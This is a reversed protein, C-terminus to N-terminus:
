RNDAPCGMMGNHLHFVFPIQEIVVAGQRFADVVLAAHFVGLQFVVFVARDLTDIRIRIRLLSASLNASYIPNCSYRPILYCLILCSAAGPPSSKTTPLIRTSRIHAFFQICQAAHTHKAHPSTLRTRSYPICNSKRWKSNSSHFM